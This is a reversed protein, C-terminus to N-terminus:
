FLGHFYKGFSNLVPQKKITQFCLHKKSWITTLTTRASLLVTCCALPSFYVNVVDEGCLDQNYCIFIACIFVFLAKSPILRTLFTFRKQLQVNVERGGILGFVGNNLELKEMLMVLLDQVEVDTQQHPRHNKTKGAFLVFCVLFHSTANVYLGMFSSSSFRTTPSVISTMLSTSYLGVRVSCM